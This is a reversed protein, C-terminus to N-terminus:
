FLEHQREDKEGQDHWNFSIKTTVPVYFGSKTMREGDIGREREWRLFTVARFGMDRLVAFCLGVAFPDGGAFFVFDVDPRFDKLRKHIKFFTPAPLLSPLDEQTLLFELKGYRSASSLDRPIKEGTQPDRFPLPEQICYCVPENM